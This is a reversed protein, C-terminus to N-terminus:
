VRSALRDFVFAENQESTEAMEIYRAGQLSALAKLMVSESGATRKNIFTTFATMTKPGIKGDVVMDPYDAQKRNLASLSRQLFKAATGAGMSVATDFLKMAVPRSIAAVSDLRLPSWYSRQHIEKAQDLSLESMAGTYGEKRAVTETIGYATADGDAPDGELRVTHDFADDFANM